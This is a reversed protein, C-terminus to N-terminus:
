AGELLSLSVLILDRMRAGLELQQNEPHTITDDPLSALINNLESDGQITAQRDTKTDVEARAKGSSKKPIKPLSGSTSALRIQDAKRKKTNNGSAEGVQQPAKNIVATLVRQLEQMQDITDQDDGEDNTEEATTPEHHERDANNTEPRPEVARDKGKSNSAGSM